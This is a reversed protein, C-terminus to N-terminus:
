KGNKKGENAKARTKQSAEQKEFGSLWFNIRFTKKNNNNKHSVGFSKQM